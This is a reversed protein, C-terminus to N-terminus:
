DDPSSVALRLALLGLAGATVLILLARDALSEDGWPEFFAVLVGLVRRDRGRWRGLRGAIPVAGAHWRCGVHGPEAIGASANPTPRGRM